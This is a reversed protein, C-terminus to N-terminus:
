AGPLRRERRVKVDHLIFEGDLAPMMLSVRFDATGYWTWDHTIEIRYRGPVGFVHRFGTVDDGRGWEMLLDAVPSAEVTVDAVLTWRGAPITINPGNLLLRRRGVLPLIGPTAPADPYNFIEAHWIAAAHEEAPLASYIDLPLADVAPSTKGGDEMRTVVGLGPVDLESDDVSARTAGNLLAIDAAALRLSAEYLIDHESMEHNTAVAAVVQAPSAVQVIWDTPPGEPALDWYGAVLTSRGDELAPADEGWDHTHFAWGGTEAGRRLSAIWAETNATPLHVVRVHRRSM